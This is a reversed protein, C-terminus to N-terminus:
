CGARRLALAFRVESIAMAFPIITSRASHLCPHGREMVEVRGGFCVAGLLVARQIEQSLDNLASCKANRELSLDHRGSDSFAQLLRDHSRSNIQRGGVM